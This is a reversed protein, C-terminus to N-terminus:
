ELMTDDILEQPLTRDSRRRYRPGVIATYHREREEDAAVEEPTRMGLKAQREREHDALRAVADHCRRSLQERLRVRLPHGVATDSM